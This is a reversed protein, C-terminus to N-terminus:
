DEPIIGDNKIIPMQWFDDSYLNRNLKHMNYHNETRLRTDGYM